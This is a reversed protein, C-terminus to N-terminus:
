LCGDTSLSRSMLDLMQINFFYFKSVLWSRWFFVLYIFFEVSICVKSVSKIYMFRNWECNRQSSCCCLLRCVLSLCIQSLIDTDLFTIYNCKKELNGEWSNVYFVICRFPIGVVESNLCTKEGGKEPHRCILDYETTPAGWVFTKLVQDNISPSTRAWFYEFVPARVQEISSFNANSM